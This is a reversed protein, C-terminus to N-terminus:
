SSRTPKSYTPLRCPLDVLPNRLESRPTGDFGKYAGKVALMPDILFTTGAYTLKMTANRILQFGVQQTKDERNGV